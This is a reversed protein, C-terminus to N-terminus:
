TDMRVLKVANIFAKIMEGLQGLRDAAAFGGSEKRFFVLMRRQRPSFFSAAWAAWRTLGRIPMTLPMEDLASEFAGFAVEAHRVILHSFPLGPVPV